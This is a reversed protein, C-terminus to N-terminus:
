IYTGIKSYYVDIVERKGLWGKPTQWPNINMKGQTKIPIKHSISPM